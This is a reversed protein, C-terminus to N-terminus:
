FCLSKNRVINKTPWSPKRCTEGPSIHMTANLQLTMHAWLFVIEPNGWRGWLQYQSDAQGSPIQTAQWWWPLQVLKRVHCDWDTYARKLGLSLAPERTRYWGDPCILSFFSFHMWKKIPPIALDWQLPACFANGYGGKFTSKCVLSDTETPLSWMRSLDLGEGDADRSSECGICAISDIQLCKALMGNTSFSSGLLSQKTKSILSFKLVM